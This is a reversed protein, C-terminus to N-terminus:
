PGPLRPLRPYRTANLLALIRQWPITPHPGVRSATELKRHERRTRGLAVLILEGGRASRARVLPRTEKVRSATSQAGGVTLPTSKLFREPQLFLSLACNSPGSAFWEEFGPLVVFIDFLFARYKDAITVSNMPTASACACDWEGMRSSFVMGRGSTFPRISWRANSASLWRRRTAASPLLVTSTMSM